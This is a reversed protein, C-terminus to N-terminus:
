PPPKSSKNKAWRDPLLQYLESYKMTNIKSYVDTLYEHPDIGLRNCSSIFSMHIAAAKGGRDSGCFLANKRVLVWTKIMRECSNNDIEFDPDNLFQILAEWHNLTYNVAKMLPNTPPMSDRLAIIKEKLQEVLPKSQEQRAALRMVSDKDRMEKEIKYLEKYIGLIEGCIMEYADDVLCKWYRRRSHANCGVETKGSDEKFLEDFGTAADAQVFGKYDKLTKKNQKFSLDPSYDFFNLPHNRDGVYATIKGKRMKRKLRRDQIKIWTDDTQVIRSSLVERKLLEYLPEITISAAIVWDCQTSRPIIANQRRFRKAQRYNPTADDFKDVIIGGLLCPGGYGGPIPPCPKEATVMHSKCQPCSRVEQMHILRVLSNVIRELQATEVFKVFTTEIHCDPCILDEPKVLHKKEQEPLDQTKAHKKHNRPRKERNAEKKLKSSISESTDGGLEDEDVDQSETPPPGQKPNHRETRPGHENLNANKIQFLLEDLKSQLKDMQEKSGANGALAEQLQSQLTGIQAVLDRIQKQLEGILVNQESILEQQRQNEQLLEELPKKNRPPVPRCEGRDQLVLLSHPLKSHIAV